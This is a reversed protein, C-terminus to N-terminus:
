LRPLAFRVHMHDTHPAANRGAYRLVAHMRSILPAPLKQRAAEQLLWQIIFPEVFIKQVPAAKQRLLSVVLALNAERDFVRSGNKGQQDYRLRYGVRFWFPSQPWLAGADDRGIYLIDVDYGHRHSLHLLLRGGRRGSVDMYALCAGPCSQELLSATQRLADVLPRQGYCRGGLWLAPHQAFLNGQSYPLLVLRPHTPAHLRYLYGGGLALLALVVLGAALWALRRPWRRPRPEGEDPPALHQAVQETQEVIM